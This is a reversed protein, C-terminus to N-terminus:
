TRKFAPINDDGRMMTERDCWRQVRNADAEEKEEEEDHQSSQHSASAEPNNSQHISPAGATTSFLFFLAM